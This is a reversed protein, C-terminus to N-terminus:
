ATRQPYVHYRREDTREIVVSDGDGLQHLAFFGQEWDRSRFINKVGDIDTLAPDGTGHHVEVVETAAVAKSGGGIVDTPFLAMVAGLYIHSNNINGQTLKVIGIRM